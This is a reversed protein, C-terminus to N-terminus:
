WYLNGTVNPITESIGTREHHGTLTHRDHDVTLHITDGTQWKQGLRSGTHYKDSGSGWWGFCQSKDQHCAELNPASSSCACLFIRGEKTRDISVKVTSSCAQAVMPRTCAASWSGKRDSNSLLARGNDLIQVRSGCRSTEFVPTSSVELEHPSGQLPRGGVKASVRYKGATLPSSKIRVCGPKCEREPTCITSTHDQLNTISVELRINDIEDQDLTASSSVDCSAPLEIVFAAGEGVVARGADPCKLEADAVDLVAGSKRVGDLLQDTDTSGFVIGSSTCPESDEAVAKMADSICNDVWQWVRLLEVDDQFSELITAAGDAQSVCAQLRVQQQELPLIRKSRLCDLEALLDRERKKVAEIIQAFFDVVNESAHETQDHIRQINRQVQGLASSAEGTSESNLSGLKASLSDRTKSAAAAIDMVTHCDQQHPRTQLCRACMIRKCDACYHSVVENTHMACRHKRAATYQSSSRADGTSQMVPQSLQKVTHNKGSRSLPHGASHTDCFKMDCNECVATAPSDSWCESCSGNAQSDEGVGTEGRTVVSPLSRMPEVGVPLPTSRSCHPCTISGDFGMNNQLCPVCLAHLCAVYKLAKESSACGSCRQVSAM